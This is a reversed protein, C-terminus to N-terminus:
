ALDVGFFYERLTLKPYVLIYEFEGFSLSVKEIVDLLAVALVSSLPSRTSKSFYKLSVMISVGENRAPVGSSSM